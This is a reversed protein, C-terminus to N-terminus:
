DLADGGSAGVFSQRKWNWCNADVFSRIRDAAARWARAREPLALRNAIRALWDCAAWCMVSSFTHVRANGRLEWLGADPQDHVAVARHGLTELREFLAVDCRRSLREDFFVHTASLIASGYM